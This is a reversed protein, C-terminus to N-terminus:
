LRGRSLFTILKSSGIVIVVLIGFLIGIPVTIPWFMVLFGTGIEGFDDYHNIKYNDVPEFYYYLKYLLVAIFIYAMAYVFFM